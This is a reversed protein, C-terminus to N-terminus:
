RCGRARNPGLPALRALLPSPDLLALPFDLPNVGQLCRRVREVTRAGFGSEVDARTDFEVLGREHLAMLLRVIEDQTMAEEPPGALLAEWIQQVTLTGDCRGVFACGLRDDSSEDLPLFWPVGRESQTHREVQTRRQPRLAAVRHWRPGLPSLPPAVLAM